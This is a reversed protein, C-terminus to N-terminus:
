DCVPAIPDHDAIPTASHIDAELGAIYAFEALAPPAAVLERNREIGVAVHGRVRNDPEDPDHLDIGPDTDQLAQDHPQRSRAQEGADELEAHPKAHAGIRDSARPPLGIAARIPAVVGDQPKFREYRVALEREHGTAAPL